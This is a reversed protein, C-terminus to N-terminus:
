STSRGRDGRCHDRSGSGRTPTGAGFVVTTSLHEGARALSLFQVRGSRRGDSRHLHDHRCRVSAVTTYRWGYTLPSSPQRYPGTGSATSCRSRVQPPLANPSAAPSGPIACTVRCSSFVSSSAPSRACRPRGAPIALMVEGIRGSILTIPFFAAMTTLTAATVPLFMRKAGREAAVMPPQRGHGAADRHARRRRHCRRRHDRADPDTRVDLDHQDSQGTMFMMPSPRSFRWRFVSPRGSPSGAISFSSFSLSCWCCARCAMRSWSASGSHWWSRRARRYVDSRSPQTATGRAPPKSTARVDAGHDQLTDATVARQVRCGSPAIEAM